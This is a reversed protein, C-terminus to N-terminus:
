KSSRQTRAHKGKARERRVLAGGPHPARRKSLRKTNPTSTMPLTEGSYVHTCRRKNLHQHTCVVSMVLFHDESSKARMNSHVSNYDWAQIEVEKAPFYSIGIGTPNVTSM